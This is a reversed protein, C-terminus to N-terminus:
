VSGACQVSGHKAKRKEVAKRLASELWDAKGRVEFENDGLCDAAEELMYESDLYGGCSDIVEGDEDKICFYLGEGNCWTTYERLFGDADKARADFTKGGIERAPHEWVLLGAIRTGDWQFEVGGPIDGNKRFWVCNGHEYYSLIHALGVELKRKLKRGDAGVLKPEGTSRDLEGLGLESPHKFSAHRTCFSYLKWTCDNDAPCEVDGDPEIFVTLKTM